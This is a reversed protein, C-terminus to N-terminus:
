KETLSEFLKVLHEGILIESQATMLTDQAHCFLTSYRVQEGSAEKQLTETQLGHAIVVEEKAKQIKEKAEDFKKKELESLARVFFERANGAHVLINMSLTNLEDNEPIM